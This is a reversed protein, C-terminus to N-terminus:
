ITLQERKIWKTKDEGEPASITGEYVYNDKKLKEIVKKVENNEVINSESTFNDHIIGLNKLNFKILKLSEAVSLKTLIKSIDEFNDFNLDKNNKIIHNAIDILYDGPYLNPDNSPYIEKNLIERIRLYVSKTFHLIQNGYDNVYYEKTIKIIILNLCIPWFM